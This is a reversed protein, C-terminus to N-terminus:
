YATINCPYEEQPSPWGKLCHTRPRFQSLEPVHALPKDLFIKMEGETKFPIKAPYLIRKQCSKGLM